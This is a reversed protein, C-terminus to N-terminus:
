AKVETSEKFVEKLAQAQELWRHGVREALQPFVHLCIRALKLWADKQKDTCDDYRRPGNAFVAEPELGFYDWQERDLLWHCSRIDAAGLRSWSFLHAALWVLDHKGTNGTLSQGVSHLISSADGVNRPGLQKGAEVGALFSDVVCARSTVKRLLDSMAKRGQLSQLFRQLAEAEREHLPLQM